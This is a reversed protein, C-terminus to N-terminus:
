QIISFNRGSRTNKNSSKRTSVLITGPKLLPAIKKSFESPVRLNSQIAQVANGHADGGNLSLATWSGRGSYDKGELRMFVGEPPNSGPRIAIPSQGIQVGNRWVYMMQDEYSILVGFPGSHSKGPTWVIKGSPNPIPRESAAVKSALLISAPKNTKSPQAIKKAIVVTAGKHMAGYLKQSFGYPLRICGHSAPYGPLHGAHMAIGEWTLRQMYPMPAGKYISSKHKVERQLITFVGTPTDHGPMGTSVTSRGIQVGNRYVYAMQDDVSVVMLVPGSPSNQPQWEYQGPALKTQAPASSETPSCSTVNLVTVAVLPIVALLGLSKTFNLMLSIMRFFALEVLKLDM